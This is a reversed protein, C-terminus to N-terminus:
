YNYYACVNPFIDRQQAAQLQEKFAEIEAAATHREQNYRYGFYM